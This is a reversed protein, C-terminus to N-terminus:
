KSVMPARLGRMINTNIDLLPTVAAEGNMVKYGHRLSFIALSILGAKVEDPLANEPETLDSVLLGWLENNMQAAHVALQPQDAAAHLLRTVRSFAEYEIERPSRMDANVYQGRSYRHTEANM